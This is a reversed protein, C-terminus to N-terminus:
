SARNTMRRSALHAELIRPRRRGMLTSVEYLVYRSELAKRNLVLLAAECHDIWANIPERWSEGTKIEIWDVFCPFAPPGNPERPQELRAQLADVLTKAAPDGFASHSIFVPLPLTESV